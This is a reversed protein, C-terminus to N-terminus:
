IKLGIIPEMTNYNQLITPANNISKVHLEDWINAFYTLQINFLDLGNTRSYHSQGNEIFLITENEWHQTWCVKAIPIGNSIIGVHKNKLYYVIISMGIFIHITFLLSIDSVAIALPLIFSVIRLAFIMNNQCLNLVIINTPM